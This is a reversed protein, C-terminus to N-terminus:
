FNDNQKAEKQMDVLDIQLQINTGGVVVKKMPYKKRAPRHLTFARKELLWNQIQGLTPIKVKLGRKNKSPLKNLSTHLVAASMFSGPQTPSFYHKELLDKQGKTLPKM